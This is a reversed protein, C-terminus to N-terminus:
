KCTGEVEYHLIVDGDQAIETSIDHQSWLYISFELDKGPWRTINNSGQLKPVGWKATIWTNIRNIKAINSNSLDVLLFNTSIGKNIINLYNGDLKVFDGNHTTYDYWNNASGQITCSNLLNNNVLSKKLKNVELNNDVLSQKLEEM